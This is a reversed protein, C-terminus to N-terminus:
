PGPELGPQPVLVGRARLSLWFIKFFSFLLKALLLFILIRFFLLLLPFGAGPFIMCTTFYCYDFHWPLLVTVSSKFSYYSESRNKHAHSLPYSLILVQFLFIIAFSSIIFASPIIKSIILTQMNHWVVAPVFLCKFLNVAKFLERLIHLVTM